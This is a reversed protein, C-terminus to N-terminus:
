KNKGEDAKAAELLADMEALIGRLINVEERELGARAFLRRLRPLLRKPREPNLFGCDILTKEAHAYLREIEDHTAGTFRPAQWVAGAGLTVRLEYAAVQVAAALNLSSYQPNAPITAAVTCQALEANSLGSMETGFVLAIEKPLLSEATSHKIALPEATLQRAAEEAMQRATLVRGAFERPRASFGAAWVCGALAEDLTTVVRVRALVEDAGSAMAEAEPAPFRSPSVLVLQSLGMTWMARAAAGINGPHSTHVLVIRVRSLAVPGANPHTM